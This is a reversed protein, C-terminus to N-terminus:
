NLVSLAWRAAAEEAQTVEHGIVPLGPVVTAGKCAKKLDRESSGMGSGESTCFPAVTKGALDVADTLTFVAMPCTGWWNPYGLFVVDYASLDPIKKLAPRAGDRQERKALTTTATYGEPYPEVTDIEFLDGGVANQIMRALRETNGVELREVNGAVYNEGRRSYYVIAISKM